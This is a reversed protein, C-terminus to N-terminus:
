IFLAEQRGGVMLQGWPKIGVLGCCKGVTGGGRSAKQIAKQIEKSKQITKRVEPNRSKERAQSPLSVWKDCPQSDDLVALHHPEECCESTTNRQKKMSAEPKSSCQPLLQRHKIHQSTLLHPSTFHCSTIHLHICNSNLLSHSYDGGKVM